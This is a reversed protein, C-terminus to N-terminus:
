ALKCLIKVYTENPAIYTQKISFGYSELIFKLTNLKYKYSYKVLIREGKAFYIDQDMFHVVKSRTFRFYQSIRAMQLFSRDINYETEVIGDEATIGANALAMMTRKHLTPNSYKSLTDQTYQPDIHEPALHVGILAYDGSSMGGRLAASIVEQPYVGFTNSLIVFLHNNYGNKRIQDSIKKTYKVDLSSLYVEKPIDLDSMNDITNQAIQASQDIAVFNVKHSKLIESALVKPKDGSASGLAILNIDTKIYKAIQAKVDYLFGMSEKYNKYDAGNCIDIWVQSQKTGIYSFKTPIERTRLAHLYELDLKHQTQIQNFIIM